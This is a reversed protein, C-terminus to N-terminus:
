IFSLIQPLLDITLPLKGPGEGDSDILVTEESHAIIRSGRVTRVAADGIHKGSYILPFKRLAQLRSLNEVTVVDFLGDNPSAEPAIMMSGGFYKGNAIAVIRAQLTDQFVEEGDRLVQLRVKKNKYELMTLLSAAFFATKGGFRKLFSAQNVRKVVNGGMGFSLVNCFYHTAPSGDFRHYEMKGVDLKQQLGVAKHQAIRKIAQRIDTPLGLTRAIDSGTGSPVFSLQAKPSIPHANLFFGNVVESMTGDGGVAIIHECGAQLATHTLISADRAARTIHVELNGVLSRLYDEHANWAAGTRGNGSAPNVIVCVNGHPTINSFPTNIQQQHSQLM